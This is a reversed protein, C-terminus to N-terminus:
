PQARSDPWVTASESQEPTPSVATNKVVKYGARSIADLVSRVTSRDAERARESLEAYPVMFEEGWEAKRSRIGQNLKEAMWGDHAAASLTELMLDHQAM